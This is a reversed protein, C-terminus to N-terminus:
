SHGRCGFWLFALEHVKEPPVGSCFNLTFRAQKRLFFCWFECSHAFNMFKENQGKEPKTQRPSEQHFDPQLRTPIQDFGRPIIHKQTKRPALRVGVPSFFYFGTAPYTDSEFCNVLTLTLTLFLNWSCNIGLFKRPARTLKIHEQPRVSM